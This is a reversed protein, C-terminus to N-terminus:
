LVYSRRVLVGDSLMSPGAMVAPGRPPARLEPPFGWWREVAALEVAEDGRVHLVLPFGEAGAGWFQVGFRGEGPGPTWEEGAVVAREVRGAGAEVVALSSGPSTGTVSLELVRGRTTREQRRLRVSPGPWPAPPAPEAALAGTLPAFADFSRPVGHPLLARSWATDRDGTTGWWAAGGADAAYFVTEPAPRSADFRSAAVALALMAGSIGALARRSVPAIPEPAGPLLVFTLAAVLAVPAALTAGLAQAVLMVTPAIVEAGFTAVFAGATQAAVGDPASARILHGGLAFLLPGSFLYSAGPMAATSVVTLVGWVGLAGLRGVFWLAGDNDGHRFARWAPFLARLGLTLAAGALAASLAAVVHVTAALLPGRFGAPGNARGRAFAVTLLASGLVCLAWAAGTGYEVVLGRMLTFYIGARRPDGSAPVRRSFSRALALTTEGLHAVTRADVRALSDRPTHYSTLGAIPALNLGPAGLRAFATLDTDNPLLASVSSALSTTVPEPVAEVFRRTVEPGANVTQFMVAPGSTGRAELNVVVGVGAPDAHEAFARAGLLGIEEGDTFLLRVPHPAPPEAALLRAVELLVAVGAADDTAGPSSPV